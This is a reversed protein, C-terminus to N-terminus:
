RRYAQIMLDKGIVQASEIEFDVSESIFSKGKGGISGISDRGGIAKPAMFLVYKDILDKELFSWALSAGCELLVSSIKKERLIFLAQEIDIKGPNDIIEVSAGLDRIKEIKQLNASKNVIFIAKEPEKKLLNSEEPTKLSGDLIVKYPNKIKEVHRVNLSPNDALVTASSTIIADVENRIGHVVKRSEESTIWKSDGNETAIKGDMTTATKFIVFPRKREMTCFFSENLRRGDEELVGRIVEIGSDELMKIGRGAVLPNPDVNSVIVRKINKEIILKACPPTNGYHSCPELNVYLDAQSLRDENGRSVADNIANVEAHPTKYKKHYGSGIIENNHVIVAGVMPNPSVRGRGRAALEMAKKMYFEKHM